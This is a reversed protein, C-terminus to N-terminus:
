SSRLCFWCYASPFIPGLDPLFMNKPSSTLLTKELEDEGISQQTWALLETRKRQVVPQPTIQFQCWGSEFIFSDTEVSIEHVAILPYLRM